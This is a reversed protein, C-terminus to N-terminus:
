SACLRMNNIWHLIRLSISLYAYESIAKLEELHIHQLLNFDLKALELLLPINGVEREYASMYCITEVRKFTRPLPLSLARKVQEALPPNLVSDQSMLELH